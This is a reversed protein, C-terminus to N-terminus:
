RRENPLYIIGDIAIQIMSKSGFSVGGVPTRAPFPKKFYQPIYRKVIPFAKDIDHMYITIKVVDKMKGGASLVQSRFNKLVQKVQQDLNNAIIKNEGSVLPIQASIFITDGARFYPTDTATNKSYAISAAVIMYLFLIKKMTAITM